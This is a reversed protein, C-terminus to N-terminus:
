DEKKERKEQLRKAIKYYYDGNVESMETLSPTKNKTSISCEIYYYKEEDTILATCEKFDEGYCVLIPDLSVEVITEHVSNPVLSYITDGGYTFEFAQDMEKKGDRYFILKTTPIKLTGFKNYEKLSSKIKGTSLDIFYKIKQNKIRDMAKQHAIGAGLAGSVVGMTTVGSNDLMGYGFFTIENNVIELQFYDIQHFIFVFQGDSFGWINKIKRNNKAYRPIVSVTGEWDNTKRPKLEIYFSDATSPQNLIFDKYTKFIGRKPKEKLIPFDFDNEQSFVPLVLLLSSIIALLKMM